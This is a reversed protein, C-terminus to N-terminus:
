NVRTARGEALKIGSSELMFIVAGRIEVENCDRCGGKPPMLYNNYGNMSHEMLVAFGKNLRETWAFNDTPMPAGQTNKEHCGKCRFEYVEEGSRNPGEHVRVETIEQMFGTTTEPKKVPGSIVAIEANETKETSLVEDVCWPEDAHENSSRAFGKNILVTALSSTKTNIGAVGETQQTNEMFINTVKIDKAKSMYDKTFEYAEQALALECKPADSDVSPASVGALTIRLHKPYGTWVEVSFRIINTAEVEILNATYQGPYANFTKGMVNHSFGCIMLALTIVLTKSQKKSFKLGDM